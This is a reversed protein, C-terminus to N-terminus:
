WYCLKFEEENKWFCSKCYYKWHYNVCSTPSIAAAALRNWFCSQVWTLYIYNKTQNPQKAIKGKRKSSCWRTLSAWVQYTVTLVLNMYCVVRYKFHIQQRKIIIMVWGGGWHYEQSACACRWLLHRSHRLVPCLCYSDDLNNCKSKSKYCKSMSQSSNSKSWAGEHGDQQDEQGPPHWPHGHAPLDLVQEPSSSCYYDSTWSLVLREAILIFKRNGERTNALLCM